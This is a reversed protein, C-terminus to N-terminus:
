LFVFEGMGPNSSLGDVVVMRVKGRSGEKSGGNVFAEETLRLIEAHTTPFTLPLVVLKLNISTHSDCLARLTQLIAGYSTSDTQFSHGIYPYLETSCEFVMSLHPFSLLVFVRRHYRGEGM